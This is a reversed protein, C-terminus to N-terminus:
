EGGAQKALVLDAIANVSRFQDVSVDDADIYIDYEDELFGIVTLIGTSDMIEQEILPTDDTIEAAGSALEEAIFERVTERIGQMQDM